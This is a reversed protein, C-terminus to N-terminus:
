RGAFQPPRKERNAALGEKFDESQFCAKVARAADQEDLDGRAIGNLAAKMGRVSLPALAAIRGAMADAASALEAPEVLHDLFGLRLLEEDNFTEDALLLRKAASLGIRQVYRQLGSIQYHIGLRAPPVFMRMGRVGIRMDCALAIDGAGGYVSGNLACITPIALRELRDVLDELPNHDATEPRLFEISFGSSFTKGGAGTLVLVRFKSSKEVETLLDQFLALEEPGLANHREPRDLTITARAGEAALILSQTM